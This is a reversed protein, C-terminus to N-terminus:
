LDRAQRTDALIISASTVPGGTIGIARTLGAPLMPPRHADERSRTM